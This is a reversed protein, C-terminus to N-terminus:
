IAHGQTIHTFIRTTYLYKPLLHNIMEYIFIMTNAGTERNALKAVKLYRNLRLIAMNSIFLSLFNVFMNWFQVM